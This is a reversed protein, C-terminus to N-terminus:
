LYCLSYAYYATSSIGLSITIFALTSFNGNGQHKCLLDNIKDELSLDNTAEKCVSEECTTFLEDDSDMKM